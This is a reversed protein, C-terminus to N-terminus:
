PPEHRTYGAGKATLRSALSLSQTSGSRETIQSGFLSVSRPLEVRTMGSVSKPTDDELAEQRKLGEILSSTGFFERSIQRIKFMVFFLAGILGLGTVIAVILIANGATM